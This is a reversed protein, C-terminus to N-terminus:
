RDLYQFSGLGGINRDLLRGRELQDDIELRRLREAKYDRGREEGAGVFHDLLAHWWGIQVDGAGRVQQDLLVTVIRRRSRALSDLLHAAAAVGGAGVGPQPDDHRDARQARRRRIRAM